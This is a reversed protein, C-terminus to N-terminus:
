TRDKKQEKKNVFINLLSFPLLLAFFGTHANTSSELFFLRYGGKGKVGRQMIHLIISDCHNKVHYFEIMHVPFNKLSSSLHCGDFNGDSGTKTCRRYLAASLGFCAFFYRSKQVWSSIWADERREGM